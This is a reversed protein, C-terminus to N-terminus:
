ASLERQLFEVFGNKTREGQYRTRKGAHDLFFSPFGEVGYEACLPSDSKVTRMEVTSGGITMTPGMSAFQPKAKVCHPCGDMEFMTFVSPNAFHERVGPGLWPHRRQANPVRIIFVFLVLVALGAIGVWYPKIEM